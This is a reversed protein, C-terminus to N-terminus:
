GRRDKILGRFNTETLDLGAQSWAEVLEDYEAQTPVYHGSHPSIELVRGDKVTVSGAFRCCHGCTLSSHHLVGSVKNSAYMRGFQDLTFIGGKGPKYPCLREDATPLPGGNAMGYGEEHDIAALVDAWGLGALLESPLVYAAGDAKSGRRGQEGDPGEAKWRSLRKYQDWM